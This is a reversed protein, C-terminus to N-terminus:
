YTYCLVGGQTNMVTSVSVDETLGGYMLMDEVTANGTSNYMHKGHYENLRVRPNERQWQWWLRDLQAHHVYFLPDNAATMALFDGNIGQHMSNHLQAEIEKVLEEYTQKRLIAGISEPRYSQGSIRGVTDGDRFGRAICHRVYTHNYLIPRLGAFPGDVVCRGGGVIEPGAPDGDGGFGTVNDWISSHALDMWDLSWDWYPVQGQFGCQERMTKEFVFLTYRHWPLFSASRHGINGLRWWSGIGGHLIAFDDYITGNEQWQSPRNALCIIAQTFEAKEGETLSRWERRVVPNNCVPVITTRSLLKVSSTLVIILSTIGMVTYIAVSKLSIRTKDVKPSSIFEDSPSNTVPAYRWRDLKQNINELIM